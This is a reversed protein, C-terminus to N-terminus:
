HDAGTLPADRVQIDADAPMGPKLEMQPNALAVKIRYVLKVREQRTQVNKPTFEAQASIFTVRGDYTKGPYTDTTVTVPQGVKVRGLDTENIYARLWPHELDGVTIVATGPAVYEGPEINQSLVLGSLPSCLTAEQLQTEALALAQRAQELRARAQAIQEARPGKRLLALRQNAERVKAQATKWTTEAVEYERDTAVKQDRLDKQRAYELRAREAEAEAWALTAEAQAIEEPRTGAELEALVAQAVGVGARRLAVEERFEKSEIRAVVQGTKVREGEAVARTEVRGPVKFSLDADTVELNGSVRIISRSDGPAPRAQRYALFAAAGVAVLAVAIIPKKLSM